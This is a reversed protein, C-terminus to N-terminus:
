IPDGLPWKTALKLRQTPCLVSIDGVRNMSVRLLFWLAGSRGAFTNRSRLAPHARGNEGEIPAAQTTSSIGVNEWLSLTPPLRPVPFPHWNGASDLGIGHGKEGEVDEMFLHQLVEKCSIAM